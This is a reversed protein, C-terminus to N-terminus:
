HHMKAAARCSSKMRLVRKHTQFSKTQHRHFKNRKGNAQLPAVSFCDLLFNTPRAFFLRFVPEPIDRQTRQLLRSSGIFQCSEEGLKWCHREQWQCDQCVATLCVPHGVPCSCGSSQHKLNIPESSSVLVFGWKAARSQRHRGV